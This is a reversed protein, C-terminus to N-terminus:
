NLSLISFSLDAQWSPTRSIIEKITGEEQKEFDKNLYFRNVTIQYPINELLVITKIVQDFNGAISVEFEITNKSKVPVEVKKVLVESGLSSGLAELDSVFKDIKNADVYLSEISNKLNEIEEIRKSFLEIEKKQKIKDELTSIVTSTHQNKNKILKLSFVFLGVIVIMLLASIILVLITINKKM